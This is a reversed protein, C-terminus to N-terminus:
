IKKAGTKLLKEYNMGKLEEEISARDEILSLKRILNKIELDYKTNNYHDFLNPYESINSKKRKFRSFIQKVINM